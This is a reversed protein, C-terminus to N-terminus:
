SISGGFKNAPVAEDIKNPKPLNLNNMIEVFEERTKGSLRPNHQKEEGVTSVQQGKYDHGPYIKTSDPLTFIKTIIVDYLTEPSGGQFDTRGCGRILLTDGTFLYDDVLFCMSGSTHGPTELATVTRNGFSLTQDNELNIDANEVNEKASICFKAGTEDRLAAASTVHDAHLHTELIYKLKIGLENLLNLDREKNEIVPDIIIGEGQDALIYTYTCSEIDFLQRFMM